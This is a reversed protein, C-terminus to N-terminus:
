EGQGYARVIIGRIDEATTTRPNVLVNGSRMADATMQELRDLSVGLARIDRPIGLADNLARVAAVAAKAAEMAAEAEAPVAAEGPRIAEKDRGLASAIRAFKDPCAPLNFEMVYPLLVANAIGHPIGFIGGLTHSIAHVNGLRSQAFAAGAMMSAVLMRERCAADEGCTYAREINDAIITMAQLALAESVPNAQKSVFSEIAHTLADMGTAATIHRPLGLTLGADLIALRPFLHPSLIATKFRTRENTIIAAPRAESGTGATTPIAVIPLAPQPLKNVGEYDLISGPNVAMAAIAKAADISSGGGVALVLECSREKVFATGKEITVAGPNPEVEDFIRYALGADHLSREIGDLLGAKRIGADTVVLVSGVGMARIREGVRNSAGLGCEVRVPMFYTYGSM